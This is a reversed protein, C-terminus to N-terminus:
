EFWWDLEELSNFGHDKGWELLANYLKKREYDDVFNDDILMVKENDWFLHCSSLNHEDHLVHKTLWACIDIIQEDSWFDHIDLHTDPSFFLTANYPGDAYTLYNEIDQYLNGEIGMLYMYDFCDEPTEIIINKGIPTVEEYHLSDNISYEYLFDGLLENFDCEYEM